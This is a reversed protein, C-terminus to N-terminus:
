MSPRAPMPWKKKRRASGARVGSGMITFGQPAAGLAPSAPERAWAPRQLGVGRDDPPRAEVEALGRLDGGRRGMHRMAKPAAQKPAAKRKWTKRTASKKTARKKAM